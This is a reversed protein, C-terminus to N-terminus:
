STMVRGRIIRNRHFKTRRHLVVHQHCYFPQFRFRFYFKLIAAMQKWFGSTTIYRGHISTDPRIKTCRYSQVKKLTLHPWVLFRFCIQSAITAMKFLLYSTMDGDAIM